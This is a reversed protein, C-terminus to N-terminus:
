IVLRSGKTNRARLFCHQKNTVVTMLDLANLGAAISSM